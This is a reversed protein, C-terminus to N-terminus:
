LTRQNWKKRPGRMKLNPASRTRRRPQGRLARARRRRPLRRWTRQRRNHAEDVMAESVRCVADDAVALDAGRVGVGGVGGILGGRRDAAEDIGIRRGRGSSVTARARVLLLLDAAVVLDGRERGVLSREGRDLVGALDLARPRRGLVEHTSAISVRSVQRLVLDEAVVHRAHESVAELLVHTRKSAVPSM